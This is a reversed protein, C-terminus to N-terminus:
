LNLLRMARSFDDEVRDQMKKVNQREIEANHRDIDNLVNEANDFRTYKVFRLTREDLRDYPIVANHVGDRTLEFRRKEDDYVIGYKEDIEKVRSSIDFLDNKIVIKM